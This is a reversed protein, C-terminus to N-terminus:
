HRTPESIHILSLGYILSGFLTTGAALGLWNLFVSRSIGGGTMQAVETNRFFAKEAAWQILRRVDDILFFVSAVIQSFFFGLITAFLYTRFKRPFFESSTFIFILFGVICLIAITWYISFILTRMKSSASHSVSKIAMFVYIDLLIMIVVIIFTGLPTRM